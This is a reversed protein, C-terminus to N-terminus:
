GSHYRITLRHLPYLKPRPRRQLGRQRRCEEQVCDSLLTRVRIWEISICTVAIMALRSFTQIGNKESAVKHMLMGDAQPRHDSSGVEVDEEKVKAADKAKAREVDKVKARAKTQTRRRSTSDAATANKLDISLM